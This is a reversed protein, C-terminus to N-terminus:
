KHALTGKMVVDAMMAVAVICCERKIKGQITMMLAKTESWSGAVIM